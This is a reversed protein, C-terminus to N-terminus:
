AFSRVAHQVLEWGAVQLGAARCGQLLQSVLSRSLGSAYAIQRALFPRSREGSGSSLCRIRLDYHRNDLLGTLVVSLGWKVSGPGELTASHMAEPGHRVAFGGILANTM